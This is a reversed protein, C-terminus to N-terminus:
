EYIVNNNSRQRRKPNPNNYLRYKEEQHKGWSTYTKVLEKRDASFTYTITGMNKVNEEVYVVTSSTKKLFKMSYDASYVKKVWYDPNIINSSELYATHCGFNTAAEGDFNFVMYHNDGWTGNLASGYIYITADDDFFQANVSISILGLFLSLLIKKM